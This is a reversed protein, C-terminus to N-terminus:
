GTSSFTAHYAFLAPAGGTHLFLVTDARSFKGEETAAILGAMAKGTYVPDLLVGETEALRRVAAIARPEVCAYGPGFFRDDLHLRSALDAPAAVNLLELTGRTLAELRSQKRSKEPSVTFGQIVADVGNRIFGAILGAQTGGSGSALAVCNFKVNLAAAQAAIEDACDVYGLAGLPNSGGLPIVYPRRGERRLREALDEAASELDGGGDTRHIEAGFLGDLLMNGSELYHADPEELVPEVVVSCRFGARAAYAATQRVHNSQVGGCTVVTDANMARADAILYDLKRCKNGGMGVGTCDDRKIYITPGGLSSSLRPLREIPTPLHAFALKSPLTM